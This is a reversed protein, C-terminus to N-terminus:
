HNLSGELIDILSIPDIRSISLRVTWHLHPGTVRGTAGVKGVIDGTEVHDGEKATIASMHGLYSYLGLGHDIIVTNGTYYLDETLVVLGSNPAHIPTGVAGRFDTGSHASRPEGNYISRKGFESIVKGPVPALFPGKWFKERTTSTFIDDVLKREKRIRNQVDAPPTVYKPEVQLVRTPFEKATVALTYPRSISTGDLGTGELKIDYRGPECDRDIGVLGTWNLGEDETYSPFQREFASIQLQKLAHSSHIELLVVEGPQISRETHTFQLTIGEAIVTGSLLVPSLLLLLSVAYNYFSLPGFRAVSKHTKHM